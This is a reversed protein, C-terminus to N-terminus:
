GIGIPCRNIITEIGVGDFADFLCFGAPNKMFCEPQDKPSIMGYVGDPKQLSVAEWFTTRVGFFRLYYSSRITVAYCMLRM